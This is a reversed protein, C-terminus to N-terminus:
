DLVEVALAAIGRKQGPGISYEVNAGVDAESIRRSYESIHAFLDREGDHSVYTLAGDVSVIKGFHREPYAHETVCVFSARPGREDNQTEDIEFAARDHRRLELFRMGESVAGAHFFLRQGTLEGETARIFGYGKDYLMTDIEGVCM